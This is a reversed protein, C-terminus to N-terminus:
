ATYPTKLDRLIRMAASVGEQISTSERIDWFYQTIGSSNSIFIDFYDRDPSGLVFEHPRYCLGLCTDSNMLFVGVRYLVKHALNKFAAESIVFDTQAEIEKAVATIYELIADNNLM